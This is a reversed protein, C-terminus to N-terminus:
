FSSRSFTLYPDISGHIQQQLKRSKLIRIINSRFQRGFNFGEWGCSQSSSSLTMEEQISTLRNSNPPRPGARLRQNSDGEGRRDWSADPHVRYDSNPIPIFKYLALDSSFSSSTTLCFFFDRFQTVLKELLHLPKSWPHLASGLFRPLSSITQLRKVLLTTM